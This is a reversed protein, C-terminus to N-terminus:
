DIHDIDFFYWFENTTFDLDFFKSLNLFGVMVRAMNSSCQTPACKMSYIVEQFFFLMLFTFRMVFYHPHFKIVRKGVKAAENYLKHNSM